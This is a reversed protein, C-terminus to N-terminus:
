LGFVFLMSATASFPRQTRGRIFTDAQSLPQRSGLLDAIRGLAGSQQLDGADATTRIIPVAPSL